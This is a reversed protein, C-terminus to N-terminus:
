SIYSKETKYCRTSRQSNGTNKSFIKTFFRRREKLRFCNLFSSKFMGSFLMSVSWAFFCKPSQVKKESRMDGAFEEIRNGGMPRM